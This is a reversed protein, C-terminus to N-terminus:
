IIKEMWKHPIVGFLVIGEGTITYGHRLYFNIANERAQLIIKKVGQKKGENELHQLVKGGMGKGQHAPSVAMYRVQATDADVLHLRGVAVLENNVLAAAHTTQPSDDSPDIESGAAQQWPKRLVDYRLQYYQGWLIESDPCKMIPEKETYM